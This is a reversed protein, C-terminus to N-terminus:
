KKPDVKETLVTPEPRLGVSSPAQRRYDAILKPESGTVALQNYSDIGDAISKALKNRWSAQGILKAEPSNSVFGCEVLVAPVKSLRLVAFRARKVGRDFQPVQGVLSHFVTSALVASQNDKANGAELRLDRQTLKEDNTSPAGRPTMSFIEFGNALPNATASNFHVSVFIANELGNAMKPRTGLPIFTDSTRTMLVKYEKAELLIKARRCVDLAFSKEMGFVCIAGNDHGGHGADLVVTKVQEMGAVNQPRLAPDITKSLDLRSVLVKEDKVITPFALWHKVGNIMIERSNSTVALSKREGALETRRTNPTDSAVQKMESFPPVTGPLTYFSAIDQLSIYDRGGEKVITWGALAAGPGAAVCLLLALTKRLIDHM